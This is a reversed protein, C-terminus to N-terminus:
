GNVRRLRIAAKPADIAEIPKYTSGDFYATHFAKQPQNFRAIIVVDQRNGYEEFVRAQTIANVLCPVLVEEGGENLINEDARAEDAKPQEYEDTIPNYVPTSDGCRVLAIRHPTKM